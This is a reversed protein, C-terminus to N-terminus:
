YANDNPFLSKFWKWLSFKKGVKVDVKEDPTLLIIEACVEAKDWEKVTAWPIKVSINWYWFIDEGNAGNVLTDKNAIHRKATGDKRFAYVEESHNPDRKLDYLMDEKVSSDPVDNNQGIIYRIGYSLFKYNTALRKIFPNFSDFIDWIPSKKILVVAHNIGKDDRRYYVGNNTGNWAYCAIALPSTKLADDFDKSDVFEYNIPFRKLFEKGMAYMEPTILSNDFYELQSEAYPFMREPILGNKRKFEAPKKLSNGWQITTGSGIADFRDSFNIKGNDDFYGNDKLWQLNNPAILEMRINYTFHIEVTSTSSFNTCCMTRFGITQKENNPLYPNWNGDSVKVALGLGSGGFMWDKKEIKELIVGSKIIKKYM